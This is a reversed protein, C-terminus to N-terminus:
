PTKVPHGSGPSPTRIKDARHAGFMEEDVNPRRDMVDEVTDTDGLWGASGTSLARRSFSNHGTEM